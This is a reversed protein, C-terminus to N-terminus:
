PLKLCTFNQIRIELAYYIKVKKGGGLKKKLIFTVALKSLVPGISQVLALPQSM